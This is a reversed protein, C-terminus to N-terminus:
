TTHRESPSRLITFLEVVVVVVVAVLVSPQWWFHAQQCSCLSSLKLEMVPRLPLPFDLMKSAMQKTKPMVLMVVTRACFKCTRNLGRRAAFMAYVWGKQGTRRGLIQDVLATLSSDRLCTDRDDKVVSVLVPRGDPKLLIGGDADGPLNDKTACRFVKDVTVACLLLRHLIKELGDSEIDVVRVEQDHM